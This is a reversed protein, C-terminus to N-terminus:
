RSAEWGLLESVDIVGFGARVPWIMVNYTVAHKKDRHRHVESRVVDFSM